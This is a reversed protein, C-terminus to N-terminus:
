TNYPDNCIVANKEATENEDSPNTKKSKTFYSHDEHDRKSM